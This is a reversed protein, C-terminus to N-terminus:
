RVGKISVTRQARATANSADTVTLTVIFNGKLQYAHRPKIMSSGSASTGDGFEWSYNSIGQPDNSASADFLCDNRNKMCSVAFSASPAGAPPTSTTGGLGTTRLLLNATSRDVSSMVRASANAIIAQSTQEPTAAPNKQLYLAAAGSVHPTAMSTGSAQYYADDATNTASIIGDGPAYIDICSGSNSYSLPADSWTSAGVTIAGPVNAPSYSCADGSANGAAVVFTVGAAIGNQIATTLAASLDGSLSM